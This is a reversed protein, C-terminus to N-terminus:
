LNVPSVSTIVAQGEAPLTTTRTLRHEIKDISLSVCLKLSTHNDLYTAPNGEVFVTFLAPLKGEKLDKFVRLILQTEDESHADLFLVSGKAENITITAAVGQANPHNLSSIATIRGTSSDFLALISQRSQNSHEEEQSAELIIVAFRREGAPVNQDVHVSSVRIHELALQPCSVTHFANSAGHRVSVLQKRDTAVFLSNHSLGVCHSFTKESASADAVPPYFLTVLNVAISNALESKSLHNPSPRPFAFLSTSVSKTASSIGLVSCAWQPSPSHVFSIALLRQFQASLEIPRVRSKYARISAIGSNNSTSVTMVCGDGTVILNAASGQYKDDSDGGGDLRVSAIAVAPPESDEDDFDHVTKQCYSGNATNSVECVLSYHGTLNAETPASYHLALSFHEVGDVYTGIPTIKQTNNSTPTLPERIVESKTDIVLDVDVSGLFKQASSVRAKLIDSAVSTWLSIPISRDGGALGLMALPSYGALPGGTATAVLSVGVSIYDCFQATFQAMITKPLRSDPTAHPESPAGMMRAITCSILCHLANCGNSDTLHVSSPMAGYTALIESEPPATDFLLQYFSDSYRLVTKMQSQRIATNTESGMLEPKDERPPLLTSIVLRAVDDPITQSAAIARADVLALPATGPRPSSGEESFATTPEELVGSRTGDLHDKLAEAEAEDDESSDFSTPSPCGLPGDGNPADSGGVFELLQSSLMYRAVAIMVAGTLVNQAMLYKGEPSFSLSMLGAPPAPLAKRSMRKPSAAAATPLMILSQPVRGFIGIAENLAVLHGDATVFVTLRGNAARAPICGSINPASTLVPSMPPQARRNSASPPAVSCRVRMLSSNSETSADTIPVEATQREIQLVVGGDSVYALQLAGSISAVNPILSGKASGGVLDKLRFGMGRWRPNPPLPPLLDGGMRAAAKSTINLLDSGFGADRLVLASAASPSNNVSLLFVVSNPGEGYTVAFCDDTDTRGGNGTMGMYKAERSSMDSAISHDATPKIRVKLHRVLPFMAPPIEPPQQHHPSAASNKTSGKGEAMSAVAFFREAALVEASKQANDLHSFLGAISFLNLNPSSTGESSVSGTRAFVQSPISSYTAKSNLASRIMQPLHRPYLRKVGLPARLHFATVTGYGTSAVITGVIPAAATTKSATAQGPAPLAQPVLDGSTFSFNMALGVHESSPPPIAPQGRDAEFLNDSLIEAAGAQIQRAVNPLWSLSKQTGDPPM